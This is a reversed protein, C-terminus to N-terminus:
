GPVPGIVLGSSGATGATGIGNGTGGAGGTVDTTGSGTYSETVICILGGQGGGGGASDSNVANAGNGGKSQITGNNVIRSAIVLNPPCGSGGGGGVQTGNGAGGGGGGGSRVFDLGPIGNGVFAMQRMAVSDRIDGSDAARVTAGGGAGGNRAGSSGGAGGTGTYGFPVPSVISGGGGNGTASNGGNAASDIPRAVSPASAGSSATADTGNRRYTGGADITLTGKVFAIYGDTLLIGGSQITLDAYYMNRTLTTTGSAIVVNGDSGDGYIGKAAGVFTDGTPLRKLTGADIILPTQVAM